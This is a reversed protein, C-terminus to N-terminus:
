AQNRLYTGVVAHMASQMIGWSLVQARRGAGSQSAAHIYEEGYKFTYDIYVVDYYNIVILTFSKYVKPAM